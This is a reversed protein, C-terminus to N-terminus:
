GLRQKKKKKNATYQTYILGGVVLFLVSNVFWQSRWNGCNFIPTCFADDLSFFKCDQACSLPTEDVCDLPSNVDCAECVFNGCREPAVITINQVPQPALGGGGGGGSTGGGSPQASVTFTINTFNYAQSNSSNDTVIVRTINYNGKLLTESSQFLTYTVPAVSLAQTFTFSKTANLTVNIDFTITQINSVNDTVSVNFQNTNGSADNLNTYQLSWNNLVPATIDQITFTNSKSASILSTNDVVFTYFTTAGLPFDSSNTINLRCSLYSSASVNYGSRCYTTGSCGNTNASDTKCFYATHNDISNESTDTFNVSLNLWEGKLLEATLPTSNTENIIPAIFNTGISVLSSSQTTGNEYGDYPTIRCLWNDNVSTLTNSLTKTNIDQDINNKTWNYMLTIVDNDADSISDNNCQLDEVDIPQSNNIATSVLIPLTNAVTISTSNQAKTGATDNYFVTFNIVAHAITLTIKDSFNFRIGSGVFTTNVHSGSQNHSVMGFAIDKDIETINGSINIVGNIKFSTGNSGIKISGLTDAVTISTSNEAVQGSADRAKVTANIVNGRTLNITINQSITFSTGSPTFTFIYPNSNGTLNFSINASSLGLDDQLFSTINLIDGFRLTDSANKNTINISPLAADQVETSTGNYVAFGGLECTGGEDSRQVFWSSNQQDAVFKLNGRYILATTGSSISFADVSNNLLFRLEIDWSQSNSTTLDLLENAAPDGANRLKQWVTSQGIISTYNGSTTTDNKATFQWCWSGEATTVMYFNYMRITFNNTNSSINPLKHIYGAYSNTGVCSLTSGTISCGTHLSINNAFDFTENFLVSSKASVTLSSLAMGVVLIILLIWKIM